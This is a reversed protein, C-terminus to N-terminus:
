LTVLRNLFSLCPTTAESSGIKEQKICPLITQRSKIAKEFDDLIINEYTIQSYAM